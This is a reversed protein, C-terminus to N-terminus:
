YEWLRYISPNHRQNSCIYLCKSPNDYAFRTFSSSVNEFDFWVRERFLKCSCTMKSNFDPINPIKKGSHQRSETDVNATLTNNTCIDFIPDCGEQQRSMSDPRDHRSADSVLYGLLLYFAHNYTTSYWMMDIGHLAESSQSEKKITTKSPLISM